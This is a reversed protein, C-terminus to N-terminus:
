HKPTQRGCPSTHPSSSGDVLLSATGVGEMVQLVLAHVPKITVSVKLAAAPTAQVQAGAPGASAVLSTLLVVARGLRLLKVPMINELQAAQAM